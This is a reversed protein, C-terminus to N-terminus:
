EPGCDIVRKVQDRCEEVMDGHFATDTQLFQQLTSALRAVLEVMARLEPLTVSKRLQDLSLHAIGLNRLHVLRGHVNWDIESYTQLYTGILDGRTPTFVDPGCKADLAQLLTAQVAPEKLAHYVTQFSVATRDADLLISVRLAAMLLVDRHLVSVPQRWEGHHDPRSALIDNLGDAAGFSWACRTAVVILRSANQLIFEVRPDASNMM